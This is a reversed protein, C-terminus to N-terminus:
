REIDCFMCQQLCICHTICERITVNVPIALSHTNRRCRPTARIRLRQIEDPTAVVRDLNSDLILMKSAVFSLTKSLALPTMKCRYLEDARV